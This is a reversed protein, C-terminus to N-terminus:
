PRERMGVTAGSTDMMVANPPAVSGRLMLETSVCQPVATTAKGDLLDILARVGRRGLEAVSQRIATLPPELLDMHLMDDFGIVSLDRPVKIKAARAARIIGIAFADATALIATRRIGDRWLREFAEVGFPEHYAGFHLHGPDVAVGAEVMAACFGRLRGCSGTMGQPGSVFAIRRHGQAILHRTAMRGSGENDVFVKPVKAGVVDDDLLVVKGCKAIADRLTGDDVHNTMFLAGDIQGDDIKSLFLLEREPENRSNFIVLSFGSKAAEEEAASAIGAFFPYAIDTTIFGLTRTSGTALHRARANARYDLRRIAADIREATEAPLHIRRNLHRSVATQSVGSAIAVDRMTFKKKSPM